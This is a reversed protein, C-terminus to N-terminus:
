RRQMCVCARTSEFACVCMHARVRADCEKLHWLRGLPDVCLAAAKFRPHPPPLLCCSSGCYTKKPITGTQSSRM